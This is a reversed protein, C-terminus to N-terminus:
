LKHPCGTYLLMIVILFCRSKLNLNIRNQKSKESDFSYFNIPQSSRILKQFPSPLDLHLCISPKQCYSLIGIHTSDIAYLQLFFFFFTGVVLINVAKDFFFFFCSFLLLLFCKIEVNQVSWYGFSNKQAIEYFM